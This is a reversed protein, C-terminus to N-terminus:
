VETGETQRWVEGLGVVSAALGLVGISTDGLFGNELSYHLTMPAYAVNTAVSRWYKATVAAAAAAADTDEQLQPSRIKVDKEGKISSPSAQLTLTTPTNATTIAPESSIEPANGADLAKTIPEKVEVDVDSDVVKKTKEGQTQLLLRGAELVTGLMWFRSSWLWWQGVGGRLKERPVIGKQALWAGNELFQFAM